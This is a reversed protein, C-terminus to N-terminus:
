VAELADCPDLEVDLEWPAVTVGAGLLEGADEGFGEDVGICDGVGM